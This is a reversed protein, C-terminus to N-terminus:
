SQFKYFDFVNIILFIYFMICRSTYLFIYGYWMTRITLNIPPSLPIQVRPVNRNVQKRSLCTRGSRCREMPWPTLTVFFSANKLYKLM